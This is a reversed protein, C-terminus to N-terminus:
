KAQELTTVTYAGGIKDASFKIKDGPKVQDLMAPDKVRYVMTMSPMDLSPIPGHKITLKQTDKNVKRVEGDALASPAQATQLAAHDSEYGAYSPAVAFGSFSIAAVFITLAKM